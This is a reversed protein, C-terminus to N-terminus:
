GAPDYAAAPVVSDVVIRGDEWTGTLAYQGWRIDGQHDYTGQHDAWDWNVLEPGTCQPPWSEAVPGLCAEPTGTDMVTILGHGIAHASGPDTATGSGGDDSGCATVLLLAALALVTKM